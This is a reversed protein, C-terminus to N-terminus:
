LCNLTELYSTGQVRSKKPDVKCVGKEIEINM